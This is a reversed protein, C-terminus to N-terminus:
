DRSVYVQFWLFLHLLLLFSTSHWEYADNLKIRENWGPSLQKLYCYHCIEYGTLVLYSPTLKYYRYGAVTNVQANSHTARLKVILATNIPLTM